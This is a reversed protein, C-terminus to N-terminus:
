KGSFFLFEHSVDGFFDLRIEGGLGPILPRQKIPCYERRNEWGLFLRRFAGRRRSENVVVEVIGATTTVETREVATKTVM